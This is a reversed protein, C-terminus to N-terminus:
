GGSGFGFARLGEVVFQVSLAALLMSGEYILSCPDINRCFYADSSM